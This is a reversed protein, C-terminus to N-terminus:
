LPDFLFLRMGYSTNTIASKPYSKWLIRDCWSPANIKDGSSKVKKWDFSDTSDKYYRYTPPFHIEEEVTFPCLDLYVVISLSAVEFSQHLICNKAIPQSLGFGHKTFLVPSQM